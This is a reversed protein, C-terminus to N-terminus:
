FGKGHYIGLSEFKTTFKRLYQSFDESLLMAYYQASDADIIEQAETPPNYSYSVIEQQFEERLQKNFLEVSDLPILLQCLESSKDIVLTHDTPQQYRKSKKPVSKLYVTSDNLYHWTYTSFKDGLYLGYDSFPRRYVISDEFIISDWSFGNGIFFVPFNQQEQKFSTWNSTTACSTCLIVLLLSRSM